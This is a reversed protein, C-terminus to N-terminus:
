GEPRAHVAARSVHKAVEEQFLPMRHDWTHRNRCLDAGSRGIRAVTEPESALQTLKEALEDFTEYTVATVGDEFGLEALDPTADCILACGAGAAEFSKLFVEPGASTRIGVDAFRKRFRLPLVSLRDAFQMNCTLCAAYRNLRQNLEGYPAALHDIRLHRRRLSRLMAARAPYMTGFHAFGFRPIGMDFFADSYYAKPIWAAAIGESRLLEAAEKSTCILTHFGFRRVVSPWAGRFARNSTFSWYNNIVDEDFMLRVGRFGAWDFTPAAHLERFRVYWLVADYQEHDPFESMSLPWGDEVFRRHVQFARDFARHPTNRGLQYRHCV